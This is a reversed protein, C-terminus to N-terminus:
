SAVIIMLIACLVILATAGIAVAIWLLNQPSRERSPPVAPAMPATPTTLMPPAPPHIRQTMAPRAVGASALIEALAMSEGRMTPVNDPMPVVEAPLAIQQTDPDPRHGLLVADPIYNPIEMSVLTHADLPDIERQEPSPRPPAPAIQPSPKPAEPKPAPEPAVGAITELASALQRAALRKRPDKAWCSALLSTLEPGVAPDAAPTKGMSIRMVVGVPTDAAFAPRGTMAEFVVSALSFVDSEPGISGRSHEPSHFRATAEMVAGNARALAPLAQGIGYDDIRARGNEDIVIASPRIAGHVLPPSLAHAEALTRAIDVALRLAQARDLPGETLRDALRVGTIPVTVAFPQGSADRKLARIPILSGRGLTGALAAAAEISDGIPEGPPVDFRTIVHELMVGRDDPSRARQRRVFGDRAMIEGLVYAALPDSVARLM